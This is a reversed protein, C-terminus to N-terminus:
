DELYDEQSKIRLDYAKIDLSMLLEPQSDRPLACSVALKRLNNEDEEVVSLFDTLSKERVRKGKDGDIRHQAM